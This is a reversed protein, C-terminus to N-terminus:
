LHVIYLTCRIYMHGGLCQVLKLLRNLPTKQWGGWVRLHPNHGGVGAFRTTKQCSTGGFHVGCPVVKKSEEKTGHKYGGLFCPLATPLHLGRGGGRTHRIPIHYSRLRLPKRMPRGISASYRSSLRCMKPNPEETEPVPPRRRAGIRTVCATPPM